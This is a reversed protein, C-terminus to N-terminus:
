EWLLEMWAWYTVRCILTLHLFLWFMSTQSLLITTTWYKQVTQQPQYFTYCHRGSFLTVFTIQSCTGTGSQGIM